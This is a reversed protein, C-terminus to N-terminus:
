YRRRFRAGPPVAPAAPAPRQAPGPIGHDDPIAPAILRKHIFLLGIYGTIGGIWELMWDTSSPYKDPLAVQGLEILLAIGAIALVAGIDIFRRVMLDQATTRLWALAIGIPAFFLTKHLMETIARFETGQYYINFPMQQLTAIRARLLHREFVFDFPYWFVAALVLCWAGLFLLAYLWGTTVTTTGTRRWRAALAIGVGAGLGATLLDTVDSVRSYVFLQLFELLLAAAVTWVWAEILTKRGSLVWLSAVPIWLLADTALDYLLQVKDEVGYGLPVLVIRGESWKHFLEVPSITLDLPLLSYLFLVMLYLLLLREAQPAAGRADGWDLLWNWLRRGQWWWLTIGIAAGIAQALIDGASPTRQAFFVQLFEIGISTAVCIPWLLLTSFLRVAVGRRPWILGQWLFGLPVTLLVNTAIDPRSYNDNPTRLLLLFEQWAQDIPRPHWALPVLSGYVIFALWVLSVLALVGRSKVADESLQSLHSSAPSRLRPNETM